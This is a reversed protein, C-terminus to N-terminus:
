AMSLNRYDGGRRHAGKRFYLARSTFRERGLPAWESFEGSADMVISNWKLYSIEAVSVRLRRLKESPSSANEVIAEQSGKARLRADLRGQGGVYADSRAHVAKLPKHKIAYVFRGNICVGDKPVDNRLVRLFAGHEGLAKIEVEGGRYGWVM